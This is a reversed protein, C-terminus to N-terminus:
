FLSYQDTEQLGGFVGRSRLLEVITKSLGAKRRLEEVSFIEGEERVEVIKNAVTDGLGALSLFPM